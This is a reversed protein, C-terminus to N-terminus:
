QWLVVVVDLIVIIKVVTKVDVPATVLAHELLLAVPAVLVDELADELAHELLLVVLVALVVRADRADVVDVMAPEPLHALNVDLLAPELVDLPAPEV